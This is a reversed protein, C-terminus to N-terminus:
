IFRSNSDLSPVPVTLNCVNTSNGHCAVFHKLIREHTNLINLKTNM